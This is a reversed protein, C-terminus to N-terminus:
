VISFVVEVLRKKSHIFLIKLNINAPATTWNVLHMFGALEICVTCETLFAGNGGTVPGQRGFGNEHTVLERILRATLFNFNGLITGIEDQLGFLM